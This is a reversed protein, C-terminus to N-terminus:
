SFVRRGRVKDRGKEKIEKADGRKRTEGTCQKDKKRKGRM